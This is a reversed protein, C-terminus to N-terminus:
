VCSMSFIFVFTYCVCLFLCHSCIDIEPV